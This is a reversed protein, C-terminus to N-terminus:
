DASVNAGWKATFLLLLGCEWGRGRLLRLVDGGLGVEWYDCCTEGLGWVEITVPHRGLQEGLKSVGLM